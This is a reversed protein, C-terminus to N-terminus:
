LKGQKSLMKVFLVITPFFVLFFGGVFLCFAMFYVHVCVYKRMHHYSNYLTHSKQIENQYFTTAVSCQVYHVSKAIWRFSLQAKSFNYETEWSEFTSHLYVCVYMCLNESIVVSVFNLCKAVLLSNYGTDQCEEWETTKKKYWALLFRRPKVVFIWKM